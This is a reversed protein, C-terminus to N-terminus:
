RLSYYISNCIRDFFLGEVPMPVLLFYRFVVTVLLPVFISLLTVIKLKKKLSPDKVAEKRMIVYLAVTLLFVLIDLTFEFVGVLMTALGSWMLICLVLTWAALFTGVKLFLVIRDLYFMGMIGMLFFILSILFDVNPILLFILIFFELVVLLVRYTAFHAVSEASGQEQGMSFVSSFPKRKVFAQIDGIARKAGNSVISNILLVTSLILLGSGIILPMLAPSVYWVNQVGGYNGKMPMRSAGVLIGISICILVLSTIFDRKRMADKDIM